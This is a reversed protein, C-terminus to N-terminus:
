LIIRQEIGNNKEGQYLEDVRMATREVTYTSENIPKSELLTPLDLIKKRLINKKKSKRKKLGRKSLESNAKYEKM